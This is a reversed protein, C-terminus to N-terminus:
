ENGGGRYRTISEALGKIGGRVGAFFLGAILSTSFTEVSTITELQLSLAVLFGAAFSELSSRVWRQINKSM